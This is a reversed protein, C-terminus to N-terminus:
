KESPWQLIGQNRRDWVSPKGRLKDLLGGEKCTYYTGHPDIAQGNGTRQWGEPLPCNSANGTLNPNYPPADPPRKWEKKEALRQGIQAETPGGPRMLGDVKLGEDKQFAKLSNFMLRDPYPTLGYSQPPSYYGLRNLAQKTNLTDDPDVSHDDGIVKRVKFASQLMTFYDKMPPWLCDPVPATTAGNGGAASPQQRNHSPFGRLERGM